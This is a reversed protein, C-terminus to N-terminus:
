IKAAFPLAEIYRQRQPHDGALIAMLSIDSFVLNISSCKQPLFYRHLYRNYASKRIRYLLAFYRGNRRELDNLTMSKSVLRFTM